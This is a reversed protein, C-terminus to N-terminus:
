NWIPLHIVLQQLFGLIILLIGLRRMRSEQAQQVDNLISNVWWMEHSFTEPGKDSTTKYGILKEEEEDLANVRIERQMMETDTWIQEDPLYVPGPGTTMDYLRQRISDLISYFGYHYLRKDYKGENGKPKLLFRPGEWQTLSIKGSKIRGAYTHRWVSPVDPLALVVAGVTTLLLGTPTLLGQLQQGPMCYALMDLAVLFPLVVLALRAQPVIPATPLDSDSM